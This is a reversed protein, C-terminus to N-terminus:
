YSFVMVYLVEFIKSSIVKVIFPYVADGFQNPNSNPDPNHKSRLRNQSGGMRRHPPPSMMKPSSIPFIYVPIGFHSMLIPSSSVEMHGYFVVTWSLSPDGVCQHGISFHVLLGGVSALHVMSFLSLM